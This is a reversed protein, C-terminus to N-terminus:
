ESFQGALVLPQICLPFDTEWWNEGQLSLAFKAPRHAM